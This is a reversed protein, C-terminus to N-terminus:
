FKLILSLQRQVRFWSHYVAILGEGGQRPGGSEDLLTVEVRVAGNGSRSPGIVRVLGLEGEALVVDGVRLSSPAVFEFQNDVVKVPPVFSFTTSMTNLPKTALLSSANFLHPFRIGHVIHKLGPQM